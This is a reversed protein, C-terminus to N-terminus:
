KLASATERVDTRRKYNEVTNSLLMAITMPGVGGPVPTIKSAVKAAEDFIVDGIIKSEGQDNTDRHIGVDVVVAGPKIWSGAVMHPKGVAVVLIDATRAIADLNQSRSHCITVTAHKELLMLAVPKGVLNSRGIVVANKGKVEVGYRDLLVMVGLPTCPRPGPKGTALLGANFSHLGDADKQPSIAALVEETDIHKPLPLQVLIGDVEDDANLEHVKELVAQPAVDAPFQFLWSRIGTKKCANVKNKVYIHSAPDDGVLVVALGPPREGGETLKKVEAALDERIAAATKTGDMIDAQGQVQKDTM